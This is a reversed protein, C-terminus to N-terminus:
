LFLMYQIYRHTRDLLCTVKYFFVFPLTMIKQKLERKKPPPAIDSKREEITVM